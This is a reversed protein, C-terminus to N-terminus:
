TLAGLKKAPKKKETPHTGYVVDYVPGTFLTASYYTDHKTGNPGRTSDLYLAESSAELGM